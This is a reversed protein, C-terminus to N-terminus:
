PYEKDVNLIYPFNKFHLQASWDHGYSADWALLDALHVSVDKVGDALDTAVLTVLVQPVQLKRYGGLNVEELGLIGNVSIWFKDGM